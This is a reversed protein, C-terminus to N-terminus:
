FMSVDFNKLFLTLRNCYLAGRKKEGAVEFDTHSLGGSDTHSPAITPHQLDCKRPHSKEAPHVFFFVSERMVACSRKQTCM